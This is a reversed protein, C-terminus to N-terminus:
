SFGCSLSLGIWIDNWFTTAKGNEVQFVIGINGIAKISINKWFPFASYKTLKAM